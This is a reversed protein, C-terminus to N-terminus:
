LMERTVIKVTPMLSTGKEKFQIVEREYHPNEGEAPGPVFLIIFDTLENQMSANNLVVDYRQTETAIIAIGRQQIGLPLDAQIAYAEQDSWQLKGNVTFGNKELYNFCSESFSQTRENNLNIQFRDVDLLRKDEWGELKNIQLVLGRLVEDMSGNADIEVINEQRTARLFEIGKLFKNRTATLNDEFLEKAKNRQDMRQYCVENSVNFFFIIAPKRAMRNLHMVEEMPTEETTQYVLSSLYYRDCIVIRGEEGTLWNSIVRSGHDMRNAAFALALTRHSFDTIKKELIQRIYLGSTSGDHPEFTLKIKNPYIGNLFIALQRALTSKGSGDLGEIVIFLSKKPMNEIEIIM